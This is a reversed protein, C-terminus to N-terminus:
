RTCVTYIQREVEEEKKMFSTYKMSASRVTVIGTPVKDLSEAAEKLTLLVMANLMPKALQESLPTLVGVSIDLLRKVALRQM